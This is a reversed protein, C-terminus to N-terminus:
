LNKQAKVQRYASYIGIPFGLLIGAIKGMNGLDLAQDAWNGIYICIGLVIAFYIGIGSFVALTKAAQFLEKM